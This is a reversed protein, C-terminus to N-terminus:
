LKFCPIVKFGAKRAKTEGCSLRSCNSLCFATTRSSDSILGPQKWWGENFFVYSKFTVMLDFWKFPNQYGIFYGKQYLLRQSGAKQIKKLINGVFHIFQKSVFQVKNLLLNNCMKAISTNLEVEDKGCFWLIFFIQSIFEKESLHLIVM